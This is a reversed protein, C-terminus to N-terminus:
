MIELIKELIDAKSSEDMANPTIGEDLRVRPSKIIDDKGPSLSRTVRESLRKEIEARIHPGGITFLRTCPSSDLMQKLSDLLKVRHM